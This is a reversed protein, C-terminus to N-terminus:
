QVDAAQGGRVCWVPVEATKDYWGPNKGNAPRFIWADTALGAKTTSSWYSDWYIYMPKGLPLKNTTADILSMLEQITPLRWGMRGGTTSTLCHTIAQAWAHNGYPVSQWVLGTERDLVAENAMNTLSIFRPCNASSDCPLTQDWSPTAYYPGVGSVAWASMSVAVAMAAACIALVRREATKM